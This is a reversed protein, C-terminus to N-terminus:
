IVSVPISKPSFVSNLASFKFLLLKLNLQWDLNLQNMM